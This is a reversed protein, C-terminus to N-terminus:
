NPAFTLKGGIKDIPRSFFRNLFYTKDIHKLADNPLCSSIDKTNFKFPVECYFRLLFNGDQNPAYTSPIVLYYGESLNYRASVERVNTFFRIVHEGPQTTQFFEPKMKVVFSVRKGKSRCTSDDCTLAKETNDSYIIEEVFKWDDKDLKFLHFGIKLDPVGTILKSSRYKQMLDILVTIRRTTDQCKSKAIGSEPKNAHIPILYIPNQYFSSQNFCGGASVGSMWYGHVGYSHWM